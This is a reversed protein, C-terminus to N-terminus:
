GMTMNAAIAPNEELADWVNAFRRQTQKPKMVDRKM